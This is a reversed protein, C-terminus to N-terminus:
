GPAERWRCFQRIRACDTFPGSTSAGARSDSKYIAIALSFGGRLITSIQNFDVTSTETYPIGARDARRADRGDCHNGRTRFLNM